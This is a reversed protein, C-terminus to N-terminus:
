SKSASWCRPTSPSAQPLHLLNLPAQRKLPLLLSLELPRAPWSSKPPARCTAQLFYLYQESPCMGIRRAAARAALRACNSAWNQSDPSHGSTGRAGGGFARSKPAFVPHSAARLHGGSEGRTKSCPSPGAFTRPLPLLQSRFSPAFADTVSSYPRPLSILRLKALYPSRALLCQVLTAAATSESPKRRRTNRMRPVDDACHKETNHSSM